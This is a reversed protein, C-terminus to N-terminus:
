NERGTSVLAKGACGFFQWRRDLGNNHGQRQELTKSDGRSTFLRAGGRNEGQRGETTRSKKSSYPQAAV